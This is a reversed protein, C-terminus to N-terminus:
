SSNFSCYLSNRLPFLKRVVVSAKSASFVLIIERIIVLTFLWFNIPILLSVISSVRFLKCIPGLTIARCALAIYSTRSAVTCSALCNTPFIKIAFIKPELSFVHAGSSCFHYNMPHGYVCRLYLTSRKAWYTFTSSTTPTILLAPIAVPLMTMSTVNVHLLKLSIVLMQIHLSLLIRTTTLPQLSCQQNHPVELYM